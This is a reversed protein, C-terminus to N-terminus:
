GAFPLKGTGQPGHRSLWLLKASLAEQGAELNTLGALESTDGHGEMRPGIVWPSENANIYMIETDPDFAPGGWEGGGNFGPSQITGRTSPPNWMNDHDLARFRKLLDQYSEPSIGDKLLDDETLVQRAYPEFFTPEPQTPSTYEGKLQTQPVPVEKIPHIPKGTVRDFMFIFGQKTTQVVVDRKKGDMTITALIPATPDDWDWLDHHVEQFHWLLKVPRQM